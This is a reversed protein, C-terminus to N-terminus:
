CFHLREGLFYLNVDACLYDLALGLLNQHDVVDCVDYSVLSVDKLGVKRLLQCCTEGM